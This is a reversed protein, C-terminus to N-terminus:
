RFFETFICEALKDPDHRVFKKNKFIKVVSAEIRKTSQWIENQESFKLIHAGEESYQATYEQPIPGNNVIVSSIVNDGIYKELIRLHQEVSFGTTEGPQSMINAVYLKKAKSSTICEPM